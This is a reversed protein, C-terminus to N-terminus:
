PSAPPLGWIEELLQFRGLAPKEKPPKRMFLGTAQVLDEGFGQMIRSPPQIVRRLTLGSSDLLDLIDGFPKQKKYLPYFNFLVEVGLVQDLVDGFGRLANYEFGPTRIRIVDPPTAGGARVLSDFRCSEIKEESVLAYGSAAAYPKLRQFDPKFISSRARDKTIHFPSTGNRDSLVKGLVQHGDATPLKAQLDAVAAPDSAFATIRLGEAFHQWAPEGMTPLGTQVVHLRDAPSPTWRPEAIEIQLDKLEFQPSNTGVYNATKNVLGLIIRPERNFYVVELQLQGSADKSVSCDKLDDEDSRQLTGDQELQLLPFGQRSHLCFAATGNEAARLLLRVRLTSRAVDRDLLDVIQFGRVSSDSLVHIGDAAPKLRASNRQRAANLDYAQM